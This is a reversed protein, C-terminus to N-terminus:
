NIIIRRIMEKNSATIILMYIGPDFDIVNITNTTTKGIKSKLLQGKIDYLEIKSIRKDSKINIFDSSPNPYVNLREENIEDVSTIIGIAFDQSLFECGFADRIALTYIGKELDSIDKNQSFISGNKRWLYNYPPTGGEIELNIYGNNDLFDNYPLIDIDTISFEDPSEVTLSDILTCGNSDVIAINYDGAPVNFLSGTHNLVNFTVPGNVANGSFILSGDELEPCSVDLAVMQYEIGYDVTIEVLCSDVNGGFDTALYREQTLGEPFVSGSGLGSILELTEVGCNDLEFPLDYRVTDCGFVSLSPPCFLFPPNNDIITITLTDITINGANDMATVPIKNIGADECDLSVTSPTLTITGNCNDVLTNIFQFSTFEPVFGNAPLVYSIEELMLMPAQLDVSQVEHEVIQQCGNQDTITAFYLGESINSLSDETSGDSWLIKNILLSDFNDIRITADNSNCDSLDSSLVFNELQFSDIMIFVSDKCNNKDTLTASYDGPALNEISLNNEGTNWRITYTELSDSIELNIHGTNSHPCIESSYSEIGLELFAESVLEFQLSDRLVQNSVTVSYSGEELNSITNTLQGTSWEINNSNSTTISIEGNNLGCSPNVINEIFINVTPDPAVSITKTESLALCGSLNDIFYTLDFQQVTDSTNSIVWQLTTDNHSSFNYNVLGQLKPNDVVETNFNLIDSVGIFDISLTDGSTIDTTSFDITPATDFSIHGKFYAPKDFGCYSDSLCGTTGDAFAFIELQFNTSYEENDVNNFNTMKVDFCFNILTNSACPSPLGWSNDPDGDNLCNSGPSTYWWGGPLLDGTTLENQGYTIGTGLPTSIYRYASLENNIDVHGYELWKWGSGPTANQLSTHTFMSDIGGNAVPVIGQLWQCNNGQGPQDIRYDLDYCITITEGPCYPGTNVLSPNEPRIISIESQSCTNSNEVVNLQLLHCDSSQTLIEVFISDSEIKELDIFSTFNLSPNFYCNSSIFTVSDCNGHYTKIVTSDFLNFNQIDLVLSSLNEKKKIDYAYWSSFTNQINCDFSVDNFSPEMGYGEFEIQFQCVSGGCGDVVLYYNNGATFEDSELTTTMTSNEINCSINSALCSGGECSSWIATQIGSLTNPGLQFSDCLIPIISIKHYDVDAIFPIFIPNDFVGGDCINFNFDVPHEEESVLEYTNLNIEEITFFNNISDCILLNNSGADNLCGLRFTPFTNIV